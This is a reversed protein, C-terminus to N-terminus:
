SSLIIRQIGDKLVEVNFNILLALSLKTTKLYSIVRAKEISPVVQLAKLEVILIKDVLLDLRGEGVEYGKYYTVIPKQPEFAIRRM